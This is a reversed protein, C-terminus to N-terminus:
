PKVPRGTGSVKPSNTTPTCQKSYKLFAAKANRAMRREIKAWEQDTMNRLVALATRLEPCGTQESGPTLRNRPQGIGCKCDCFDGMYACVRTKRTAELANIIENRTMDSQQAPLEMTKFYFNCKLCKRYRRHGGNPMHRSNHVITYPNKCAPCKISRRM